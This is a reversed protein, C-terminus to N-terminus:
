LHRYILSSITRLSALRTLGLISTRFQINLLINVNIEEESPWESFIDNPESEPQFERTTIEVSRIPMNERPPKTSPPVVEKLSRGQKKEKPKEKVNDKKGKM